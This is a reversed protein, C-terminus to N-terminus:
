KHCTPYDGMLIIKSQTSKSKQISQVLQLKLYEVQQHERKMESTPEKICMFIGLEANERTVTGKLDRVMASGINNGGKVSVIVKAHKPTGKVDNGIPIYGRGDIGRDRGKKQNPMIGNIRTVAWAEFQSKDRNALEQASEFTTPVGQVKPKIGFAQKMRYEILGIALHTVDIGVWKRNLKESAHVATGCGCFPDLIVDGENSSAQIIKELLVLPKQTPYGLREKAQPSIPPVNNIIDQLPVGSNETLYRKFYIFIREIILGLIIVVM